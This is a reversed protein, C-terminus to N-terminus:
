NERMQKNFLYVYGDGLASFQVQCFRSERADTLQIFLTLKEVLRKAFYLLGLVHLSM